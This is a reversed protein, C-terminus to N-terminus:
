ASYLMDFIHILILKRAIIRKMIPFISQYLLNSPNKQCTAISRLHLSNWMYNTPMISFYMTCGENGRQTKTGMVKGVNGEWKEDTIVVEM